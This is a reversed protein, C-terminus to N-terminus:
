RGEQLLQGRPNWPILLSKLQEGASLPDVSRLEMSDAHDRPSRWDERRNWPFVATALGPICPVPLFEPGPSNVVCAPLGGGKASRSRAM